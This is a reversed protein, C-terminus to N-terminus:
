LVIRGKIKKHYDDESSSGDQKRKFGKLHDFYKNLKTNIYVHEKSRADGSIDKFKANIKREFEVRVWDWIFSDHWQEISFIEGTEYVDIMRNIYKITESNKMNFGLFSCESYSNERGLYSMLEDQNPMFELLNETNFREKCRLDADTWILYSLNDPLYDLVQHISFPKFSFRIANWRFDLSANLRSKDSNDKRIKLGNAEHLKGFKKLFNSHNPSILPIIFINDSHHLIEEPYNFGEFIIFLKIDPSSYKSFEELFRKGYFDYLELNMSSVFAIEM